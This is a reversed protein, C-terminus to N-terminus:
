LRVSGTAPTSASNVELVDGEHTDTVAATGAPLEITAFARPSAALRWAPLAAAIKLVRGGTDVFLVDIAFRMFWTHISVCPALILGEGAPLDTRGLLGRRRDAMTVAVRAASALVAANRTNTVAYRAAPDDRCDSLFSSDAVGL